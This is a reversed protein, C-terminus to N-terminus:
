SWAIEQCGLATAEDLLRELQDLREGMGEVDLGASIFRPVIADGRVVMERETPRELDSGRTRLAIRAKELHMRMRGIPLQGIERNQIGLLDFVIEVTSGAWDVRPAYLEADQQSVGTGHCHVCGAFAHQRLVERGEETHILTCPDPAGQACLCWDYDDFSEPRNWSAGEPLVPIISLGM